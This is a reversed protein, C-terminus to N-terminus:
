AHMVIRSPFGEFVKLVGHYFLYIPLKFYKGTGGEIATSTGTNNLLLFDAANNKAAAAKEVLHFQM